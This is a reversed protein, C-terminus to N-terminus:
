FACDADTLHRKSLVKASVKNQLFVLARNALNGYKGLLESNCRPQFDKWTFESDQNEPANKRLDVIQHQCVCHRDVFILAAFTGANDNWKMHAM